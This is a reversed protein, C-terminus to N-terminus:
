RFRAILGPIKSLMELSLSGEIPFQKKLREQLDVYARILNENADLRVATRKYDIRVFVDFRGRKFCSAIKQRIQNEFRQFESPM